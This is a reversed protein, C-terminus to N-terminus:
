KKKSEEFHIDKDKEALKECEARTKEVYGKGKCGNEGKCSNKGEQACGSKGKCSNSGVCHGKDTPKGDAFAASTMILSSAAFIGAFAAGILAKNKNNKM